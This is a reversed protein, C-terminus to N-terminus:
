KTDKMYAHFWDGMRSMLGGTGVSDVVEIPVSDMILRVILAFMQGDVTTQAGLRFRRGQYDVFESQQLELLEVHNTPIVEALFRPSQTHLVWLSEPAAKHNHCIM